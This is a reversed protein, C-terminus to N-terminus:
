SLFEELSDRLMDIDPELGTLTQFDIATQAAHIEIGDVVCCGRSSPPQM